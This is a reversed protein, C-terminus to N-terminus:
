IVMIVYLDNFHTWSPPSAAIFLSDQRKEIPCVVGRWFNGRERSSRCGRRYMTGQAWRSPGGFPMEIPEATKAPSVFTVLLCVCPGRCETQLLLSSDSAIPAIRGLLLMSVAGHPGLIWFHQHCTRRICSRCTSLVDVDTRCSLFSIYLSTSFSRVYLSPYVFDM